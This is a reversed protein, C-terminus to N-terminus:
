KDIMYDRLEDRAKKCGDVNNGTAAHDLLIMVGHCLQKLMDGQSKLIDLDKKFRDENLKQDDDHKSELAEVRAILDKWPKIFVKYLM